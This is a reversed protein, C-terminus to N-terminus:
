PNVFKFFCRGVPFAVRRLDVRVTGAGIVLAESPCVHWVSLDGSWMLVVGSEIGDAFFVLEGDQLASASMAFAGFRPTESVAPTGNLVSSPRWNAATSWAPEPALLDVAVLSYGTSYTEPYWGSSYAFSFFPTGSPDALTVPEGLRAFNKGYQFVPTEAPVANHDAFVVANKVLVVHGGGPVVLGEPASWEVAADAGGTPVFSIGSLDLTQTSTNVLDMWAHSDGGNPAYMFEAVRLASYDPPPLSFAAATLASWEGNYRARAKVVGANTVAFPAAYAVANSAVAGTYAERPDSGDFTLYVVGQAAAVSVGGGPAV